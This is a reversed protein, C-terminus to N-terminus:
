FGLTAALYFGRQLQIPEATIESTFEAHQSHLLNQGVLSLEVHRDAQWGLRVDLEEYSEIGLTPLESVHRLWLDLDIQPLLDFGARLSLQHEPSGGEEGGLPEAASGPIARL